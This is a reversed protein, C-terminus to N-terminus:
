SGQRHSAAILVSVLPFISGSLYFRITCRVESWLDDFVQDLISQRVNAVPTVPPLGSKFSEYHRRSSKEDCERITFYIVIVKVSFM